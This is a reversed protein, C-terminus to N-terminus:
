VGGFFGESLLGEGGVAGGWRARSPLGPALGARMLGGVRAAKEYAGRFGRWCGVMWM